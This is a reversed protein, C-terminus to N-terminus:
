KIRGQNRGTKKQQCRVLGDRGKKLHQNRAQEQEEQAQSLRDKKASNTKKAAAGCNRYLKVIMRELLLVNFFFAAQITAM